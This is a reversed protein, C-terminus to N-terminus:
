KARALEAHADGRFDTPEPRGKKRAKEIARAHNMDAPIFTVPTGREQAELMEDRGVAGGGIGIVIDSVAVLAESTPSLTQTGELYGGWTADEIFFVTECDPSTAAGYVKAQTSVIGTTPFGMAKAVGYIAGIGEPTAISNVITEGPRHGRLVRRAEGGMAAADEYGSGSYGIFTVVTKGQDRFWAVVDQVAVTDGSTPRLEDGCGNVTLALLLLASRTRM